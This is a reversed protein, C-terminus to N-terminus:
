IKHPPQRHNEMHKSLRILFALADGSDEGFCEIQARFEHRQHRTLYVRYIHQVGGNKESKLGM